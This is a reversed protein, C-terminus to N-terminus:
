KEERGEGGEEQQGKLLIDNNIETRFCPFLLLLDTSVKSEEEKGLM